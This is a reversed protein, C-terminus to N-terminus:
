QEHRQEAMRARGDITRVGAHADEDAADSCPARADADERRRRSEGTARWVATGEGSCAESFASHLPEEGDEARQQTCGAIGRERAVGVLEADRERIAAEGRSTRRQVSDAESMMMRRTRSTARRLAHAEETDAAADGDDEADSMSANTRASLQLRARTRRSQRSRRPLCTSSRTIVDRQQMQMQQEARKLRLVMRLYVATIQLADSHKHKPVDGVNGLLQQLSPAGILGAAHWEACLESRLRSFRACQMLAHERTDDVNCVSCRASDACHSTDATAASASRRFRNAIWSGTCAARDFRWQARTSAAAATDCTYHTQIASRLTSEPEHAARLGVNASDGATTERHTNRWRDILEQWLRTAVFRKRARRNSHGANNLRLPPVANCNLSCAALQQEVSQLVDVPSDVAAIAASAAASASQTHPAQSGSAQTNVESTQSGSAQTNVESTFTAQSSAATVANRNGARSQVGLQEAQEVAHMFPCKHTLSQQQAWQILQKGYLGRAHQMTDHLTIAQLLRSEHTPMIGAEILLSITGTTKPLRLVARLPRALLTDLQQCQQKSPQWFPLAYTIRSKVVAQALLRATVLSAVRSQVGLRSVLFAAFRGSSMLHENQQKWQLKPTFHMGLYNYCNVQPVPADQLRFGVPKSTKTNPARFTMRACKSPSFKVRWRRSWKDLHQMTTKMSAHDRQNAAQASMSADAATKAEAPWVAVDDAYAAGDAHQEIIKLADNLYINWLLPALVSGQPLGAKAQRWTSHQQMSCVRLRRNKLFSRIFLWVRGSLQADHHLKHMLLEHPVTDYAGKIDLFVVPLQRSQSSNLSAIRQTLRLLHDSTSRQATFGCQLTSLVNRSQLHTTLRPKIVREFLRAVTSTLSIPRWSAALTPAAKGGKHIPTVDADRMQQPVVAHKWCHQFLAHLAGLLRPPAFRLFAAHVDDAGSATDIRMAQTAAIVESLQIDANISLTAGDTAAPCMPLQQLRTQRHLQEDKQQQEDFMDGQHVQAAQEFHDALNILSRRFSRPQQGQADGVSDPQLRQQPVVRTILTQTARSWPASEIDAVLESLVQQQADDRQQEYLRRAQSRRNHAALLQEPTMAAHRQERRLALQAERYDHHAARVAPMHYWRDSAPMCGSAAHKGCTAHAATLICATICTLISEALQSHQFHLRLRQLKTADWLHEHLQLQNDVAAAYDSWDAAVKRGAIRWATRQTPEQRAQHQEDHVHLQVVIPTHDSHLSYHLQTDVTFSQVLSPQSVWALDLVGGCRQTAVGQAFTTNLCHMGSSDMIDLLKAGETRNQTHSDPAWDSHQANFDGIVLLPLEHEHAKDLMSQMAAAAPPHFTGPWRYMSCALLSTGGITLRIWLAAFSEDTSVQDLASMEQAAVGNRVLWACQRHGAPALWRYDDFQRGVTSGAPTKDAESVAVALPRHRNLSCQMEAHRAPNVLSSANWGIVVSTNRGVPDRRRPRSAGGARLGELLNSARM